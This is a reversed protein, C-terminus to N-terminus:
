RDRDCECCDDPIGTVDIGVSKIITKLSQKYLRALAVLNEVTPISKGSEFDAQTREAIGTIQRVQPRTLNLEDRFKRLPHKEPKEKIMLLLGCATLRKVHRYSM